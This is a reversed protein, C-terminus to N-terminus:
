ACSLTFWFLCSDTINLLYLSRDVSGRSTDGATVAGTNMFCVRLQSKFYIWLTRSERAEVGCMLASAGQSTCECGEMGEPFRGHIGVRVLRQLRNQPNWHNLYAGGRLNNSGPSSNDWPHYLCYCDACFVWPRQYPFTILAM